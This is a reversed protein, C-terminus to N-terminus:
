DLECVVHQVTMQLGVARDVAAMGAQLVAHPSQKEHYVIARIEMLLLYADM